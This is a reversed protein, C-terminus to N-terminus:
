KKEMKQLRAKRIEDKTLTSSSQSLLQEDPKIDDCLKYPKTNFPNLTTKGSINNTNTTNTTNTTNPLNTRDLIMKQQINKGEDTLEKLIKKNEELENPNNLYEKEVETILTNHIEDWDINPNFQNLQSQQSEMYDSFKFIGTKKANFKNKFENISNIKNELKKTIKETLIKRREILKIDDPTDFDIELEDTTIGYDISKNSTSILEVITFKVGEITFTTNLNVCKFQNIKNELLTKIDMKIYSSNNGRIKCRKIRHPSTIPILSVQEGCMQISLKKCVWDPLLINSEFEGVSPEIKKLYIKPNAPNAPNALNASNAPNSLEFCILNLNLNNTYSIFLARPIHIFHSDDDIYKHEDTCLAVCLANITKTDLIDERYM